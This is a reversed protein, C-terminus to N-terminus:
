LQWDMVPAGPTPAPLARRPRLASPDTGSLGRGRAACTPLQLCLRPNTVQQGLGPKQEWGRMETTEMAWPRTKIGKFGRWSAGREGVEQIALLAAAADGPSPQLCPSAPFSSNIKGWQGQIQSGEM